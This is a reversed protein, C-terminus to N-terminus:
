KELKPPALPDDPLKGMGATTMMPTPSGFKPTEDCVHFAYELELTAHDIGFRDRLTQIVAAEIEEAREWQGKAIM